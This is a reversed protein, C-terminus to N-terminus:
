RSRGEAELQPKESGESKLAPRTAPRGSGAQEAKRVPYGALRKIGFEPDTQGTVSVYQGNPLRKLFMLYCENSESDFSVFRPGNVHFVFMSQRESYHDEPVRLHRLVIQKDKIEGKLTTEVTMTTLTVRAMVPKADGGWFMKIKPVAELEETKEVKSPAAVLIVDASAALKEYDWSDIFRAWSPDATAFLLLTILTKMKPCFAEWLARRSLTTARSPTTRTM